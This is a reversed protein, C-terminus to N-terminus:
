LFDKINGIYEADWVKGKIIDPKTQWNVRYPFDIAFEMLRSRNKEFNKYEKILGKFNYSKIGDIYISNERISINFILVYYDKVIKWIEGEKAYAIPPLEDLKWSLRKNKTSDFINGIYKYQDIDSEYLIREQYIQQKWYELAEELSDGTSGIINVSKGLEKELYQLDKTEKVKYIVIFNEGHFPDHVESEWVDGEKSDLLRKIFEKWSLKRVSKPRRNEFIITYIKDEDENSINNEKIYKLFTDFNKVSTFNSKMVWNLYADTEKSIGKYKDYLKKVAEDYPKLLWSSKLLNSIGFYEIPFIDYESIKVPRIVRSYMISSIAKEETNRLLTYYVGETKIRDRYIFGYKQEKTKKNVFKVLWGSLNDPPEAWSLKENKIIDDIQGLYIMSKKWNDDLYMGLGSSSHGLKYREILKDFDDSIIGKFELLDSDGEWGEPTYEPFETRFYNKIIEGPEEVYFYQYKESDHYKHKWVSREPVNPLKYNLNWSLKEVTEDLNQSEGIKGTEFEITIVPNNKSSEIYLVSPKWKYDPLKDIELDKDITMHPIFDYNKNVEVYKSIIDILESHLKAGNEFNILIVRSKDENDFTAVGSFKCEPSKYDKLLNSIDNIVNERDEDKINNNLYVVTTHAQDIKLPLNADPKIYIFLSDQNQSSTLNKFAEFSIIEQVLHKSVYDSDRFTLTEYGYWKFLQKAEEISIDWRAGIKYGDDYIVIGYWIGDKEIIKVLWGELNEPEAWSLKNNLGIYRIPIIDYNANRAWAGNYIGVLHIAAQETECWISKIRDDLYDTVVGYSEDKDYKNVIKVLWGTLNNVEVWSLKKNKLFSFVNRYDGIREFKFFEIDIPTKLSNGGMQHFYPSRIQFQYELDKISGADFGYFKIHPYSTEDFTIQLQDTPLIYIIENYPPYIGKWIEGEKMDMLNDTGRLKWSLKAYPILDRGTEPRDTTEHLGKEFIMEPDSPNLKYKVPDQKEKRRSPYMNIETLPNIDYQDITEANPLENWSLKQSKSDEIYKIPIIKSTEALISEFGYKSRDLFKHLDIAKNELTTEDFDSLGESLWGYSFYIKTDKDSLFEKVNEVVGLYWKETNVDYIKVLWGIFNNEPEQWSLKKVFAEKNWWDNIRIMGEIEEFIAEKASEVTPFIDGFETTGDSKDIVGGIEGNNDEVYAIFYNTGRFDKSKPIHIKAAWVIDGRNTVIKSYDTLPDVRFIRNSTQWAKKFLDLKRIPIFYKYLDKYFHHINFSKKSANGKANRIAEEETHGYSIWIQYKTQKIVIAFVTYGSRTTYEFLWGVYNSLPLSNESPESWSLNLLGAQVGNYAYGQDEDIDQYVKTKNKYENTLEGPFEDKSFPLNKDEQHWQTLDKFESQDVDSADTYSEPAATKNIDGIYRIPIINEKKIASTDPIYKSDYYLAFIALNENSVWYVKVKDGLDKLVLGYSPKKVNLELVSQVLWGELNDIEVWFM